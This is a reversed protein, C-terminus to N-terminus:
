DLPRALPDSGQHEAGGPTAQGWVVWADGNWSYLAPTIPDEVAEWLRRVGVAVITELERDGLPLAILVGRAPIGVAFAGGAFREQLAAPDFLAAQDLGDGEASLLYTRVDGEVQVSQPREATLGGRVGALAREEVAPLQVQWASLDQRTVMRRGAAQPVTFCTVLDEAFPQCALVAAEDEAGAARAQESWVVQISARDVVPLLGEPVEALCLSVLALALM